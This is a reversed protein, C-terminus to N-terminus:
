NQTRNGKLYDYIKIGVKDDKVQIMYVATARTTENMLRFTIRKTNGSVREVFNSQIFTNVLRKSDKESEIYVHVRQSPIQMSLRLGVNGLNAWNAHENQLFMKCRCQMLPKTTQPGDEPKRISAAGLSTSRLIPTNYQEQEEQRTANMVEMLTRHLSGALAHADRPDNCHVLYNEKRGNGMDIGISVDTPAEQRSTMNRNVWANLYMHNSEKIVIALCPRNAMTQRIEAICQGEVAAWSNDKWRFVDCPPTRHTVERVAAMANATTPSRPSGMPSGNHPVNLFNLGEQSPLPPLGQQPAGGPFGQPGPPGHTPSRRLSPDQPYMMPRPMPPMGPRPQMALPPPRHGMSKSPVPSNMGFHPPPRQNPPYPPRAMMGPPRSTYMAGPPPSTGFPPAPHGMHGGPPPRYGAAFNPPPPRPRMPPSTMGAPGGASNMMSPASNIFMPDPSPIPPLNQQPGLHATPASKSATLMTPASHVAAQMAIPAVVRDVEIPQSLLPVEPVESVALEMNHVTPPPIYGNSVSQSLPPGSSLLQVGPSTPLPSDPEFSRRKHSLSTPTAPSSSSNSFTDDLKLRDVKPLEMFNARSPSQVPSSINISDLTHSVAPKIFEHTVAAGSGANSPAASKPLSPLDPTTSEPEDSYMGFITDRSPAKETSTYMDFITDRNSDSAANSPLEKSSPPTSNKPFPAPAKEAVPVPYNPPPLNQPRPSTKELWMAKVARSDTRLHMCDTNRISVQIYYEGLSEREPMLQGFQVHKLALPPFVLSYMYDSGDNRSKVLEERNMRRAVILVDSLLFVHAAIPPISNGTAPFLTFDDDVILTRPASSLQLRCKKPERSFVDVATSADIMKELDLIAGQPLPPKPMPSYQPSFTTNIHPVNPLSKQRSPPSSVIHSPLPSTMARTNKKAMLMITDIRQNAQALLQHDSRGPETTELLRGYLIKYYLMRQIPANVLSEMTIEYSHQASLAYLAAKVSPRGVIDQRDNLNSIFSRSYNAYPAEMENVWQMLVDGLERIGQPSASIKILRTCFRKNIKFIDQAHKLLETFDTSRQDNSWIPAIQTTIIKLTDLYEKETEILDKLPNGSSNASTPKASSPTYSSQPTSASGLASFGSTSGSAITSASIM